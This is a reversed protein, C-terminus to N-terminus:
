GERLFTEVRALDIYKLGTRRLPKGELVDGILFFFEIAIEQVDVDLRNYCCAHVANILRYRQILEHTLKDPLRERPTRSRSRVRAM